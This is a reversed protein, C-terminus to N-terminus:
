FKLKELKNLQKKVSEIKRLKMEEARVIASEKTLHWEKGEGHFYSTFGNKRIEVMDSEDKDRISNVCRKVELEYIGKTLAYKSIWVKFNASLNWREIKEERLNRRIWIM